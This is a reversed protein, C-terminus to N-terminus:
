LWRPIERLDAVLRAYEHAQSEEPVRLIASPHTTVLMSEAWRHPTLRGRESNVRVIRGALSQGATGGLAVLLRPRVAAIEAELWPRCAAIEPGAPTQHIRRKGRETFKFHKVANTVYVLSRDVGADALARDLLQGAPGVFPRGARDEADGPQEGILMVGARAPGEGFVTQTADKYLPCGRCLRAAQCLDPLARSDPLFDAASPPATLTMQEVRQGAELLLDPIMGAEPLASWYRVPMQTKLGKEDVRAPNFVSAYYTRWFDELEDDAPAQSRPAGPGFRLQQGDWYASRDPTLIAGRMGGFRKVFFPAAAEVISHDPRHWAIYEDGSRRFRVFAHMRHIDHRVEKQFLLMRRVDDDVEIHLLEPEGHTLRFLIRYLLAWKSADRHMAVTKAIEVFSRPVRLAGSAPEPVQDELPLGEADWLVDQPPVHSALLGRAADRWGEFSGDFVPRIM